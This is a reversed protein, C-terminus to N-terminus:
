RGNRPVKEGHIPLLDTGSGISSARSARKRVQAVPSLPLQSRESSGRVTTDTCSFLWPARPGDGDKVGGYREANRRVHAPTKGLEVAKEKASMWKRGPQQVTAALREVVFDAFDGARQEFLELTREATRAVLWEALEHDFRGNENAGGHGQSRLPVSM